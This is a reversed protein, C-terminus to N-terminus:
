DAKRLVMVRNEAVGFLPNAFLALTRPTNYFTGAPPRNGIPRLNVVQGVFRPVGHFLRIHSLVARSSIFPTYYL